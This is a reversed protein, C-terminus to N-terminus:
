LERNFQELPHFQIGEPPFLLWDKHARDGLFSESGCREWFRELGDIESAPPMLSSTKSIMQLVLDPRNRWIRKASMEFKASVTSTARRLHRILHLYGEAGGEPWVVLFGATKHRTFHQLTIDYLEGMRLGDSRTTVVRHHIAHGLAMATVNGRNAVITRCPPQSILMRRWSASRRLFPNDDSDANQTYLPLSSFRENGVMGGQGDGVLRSESSHHLEPHFSNTNEFWAPFLRSLIPNQVKPPIDEGRWVNLTVEKEPVLFLAQQIALSDNIVAHWHRSVRNAAVLLTVPDIRLLIAELLEVTSLVASTPTAM